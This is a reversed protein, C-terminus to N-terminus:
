AERKKPLGERTWVEGWFYETVLEQMPRNFKTKAMSKDLHEAGLVERRVELGAEFKNKENM